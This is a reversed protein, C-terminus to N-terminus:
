VYFGGLAENIIIVALSVLMGIVLIAQAGPNTFLPTAVGLIILLPGQVRLVSIQREIYIRKM